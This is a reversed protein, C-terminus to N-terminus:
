KRKSIVFSFCINSKVLKFNKSIEKEQVINKKTYLLMYTTVFIKSMKKNYFNDHFKKEKNHFNVNNVQTIIYTKIFFKM